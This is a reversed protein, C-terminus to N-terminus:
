LIKLLGRVDKLIFDPKSKIIEKRSCSGSLVAITTVEANKGAKVDVVMDGVYLTAKKSASFIKRIRNIIDPYPKPKKIQDACLIYAFFKKIGLHKLVIESFKRPRNSAVSLIYKKNKLYALVKKAGPLLYSKKKLSLRHHKRYISLAKKLNEKGVFPSLLAEDGYGVAKKITLFPKAAFSLKQMTFNFSDAIAEYADVLTGDLDFIVLKIRFDM